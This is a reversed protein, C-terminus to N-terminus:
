IKHSSGNLKGEIKYAFEGISTDLAQCIHYVEIFDLNKEGSEYKSIYSQPKNLKESLQVQTLGANLRLDKLLEQLIHYDTNQM